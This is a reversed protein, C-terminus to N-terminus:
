NKVVGFACRCFGATFVFTPKSWNFERDGLHFVKTILTKAVAYMFFMDDHGDKYFIQKVGDCFHLM